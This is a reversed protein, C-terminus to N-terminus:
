NKIKKWVAGNGIYTPYEHYIGNSYYWVDGYYDTIEYNAGTVVRVAHSNFEKRIAVSNDLLSESDFNYLHCALDRGITFLKNKANKCLFCEVGITPLFTALTTLTLTTLDVKTFSNGYIGYLAGDLLVYNRLSSVIGTYSTSTKTALDFVWLTTDVIIIVENEYYFVQSPITSIGISTYTSILNDSSFEVVYKLTSSGTYRYIVSFTRDNVVDYALPYRGYNLSTYTSSTSSWIDTTIKNTVVKAVVDFTAVANYFPTGSSTAYSYYMNITNGKQYTARNHGGNQDTIQANYTSINYNLYNATFIGTSPDYECVQLTTITGNYRILFCYFKNNIYYIGYGRYTYYSGSTTSMTAIGVKTNTNSLVDYVYFEVASYTTSGSTTSGVAFFIKSESDNAIADYYDYTNTTYYTLPVSPLNLGTANSWTGGIKYSKRTYVNKASITHKEPTLIAIGDFVDTPLTPQCFINLDTKGGGASKFGLKAGDLRVGTVWNDPKFLDVPLPDGNQLTATVPQGNVTWTDGDAIAAKALFTINNGTGDLNHVTGNKTHTYTSVIGDNWKTKDDVTVHIEANGTHTTILNLLNGATNEDLIDQLSQFWATFEAENEGKFQALDAQIQNYLTTTDVQDVISTVIGCVADDLRTDTIAAQTIATTGPALYLEALKLDYQEATREIPPAVPNSSFTGTLVQATINRENLDWRLVVTDKRALVGDANAIAVVMNSDNEYKYREGNSGVWARGAPIIIQMNEGATVALEGNYVGNSVFCGAWKALFSVSYKRDGNVSRFFGSTEAM